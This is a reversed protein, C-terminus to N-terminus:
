FTVASPPLHSIQFLNEAAALESLRQRLKRACADGLHRIGAKEQNCSKALAQTRFYIEM